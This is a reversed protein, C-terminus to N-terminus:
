WLFSCSWRASHGDNKFKYRMEKTLEVATRLASFESGFTLTEVSNQMKSYWQIPSQNLYILVGTQLRRTMKDGAHDADVFIIMQVENGRPEPVNNPIDERANPYFQSWDFEVEDEIRAYSDDLVLKSRDHQNPYTFIHLVAKSHGIRPAATFAALMSVEGTIDLRGLEVAWRLVVIQQQYFEAEDVDCLETVDLEPRYGSPLVGNAKTKTLNQCHMWEKVNRIAEKVYKESSMYWHKRTPDDLLQYHGVTAGLYQTPTGVSDKKLIYHQDLKTLVNCPDHSISLIDDTYVLVYEYYQFGNPKQNPRMWVDKDALCSM